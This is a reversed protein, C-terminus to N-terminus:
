HPQNDPRGRLQSFFERLMRRNAFWLLMTIVLMRFLGLLVTGTTERKFGFGDPNPQRSIHFLWGMVARVGGKMFNEISYVLVSIWVSDAM